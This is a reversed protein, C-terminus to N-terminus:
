FSEVPNHPHLTDFNDHTEKCDYFVVAELHKRSIGALCAVMHYPWDCPGHWSTGAYDSGALDLRSIAAMDVFRRLSANFSNPGAM